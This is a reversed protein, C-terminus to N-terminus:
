GRNRNGAISDVALLGFIHKSGVNVRLYAACRELLAYLRQLEGTSLGLDSHRLCLMDGLEEMVCDVFATTTRLDMGDNASCWSYLKARDGTAVAKLYAAALDTLEKDAKPQEGTRNLEVCRSRVTPLLQSPNTTCLLFVTGLPPEELLKLAANQAPINMTEAESIIYVKRSAENPMICADASLQRIQEVTIDRKSKGKDDELRGITIVDPHINEAVKHCARCAGCPKHGAATCVAAAALERAAALALDMNPASILYAHSLRDTDAIKLDSMAVGGLAGYFM